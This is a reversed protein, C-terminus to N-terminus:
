RFLWDQGRKWRSLQLSLCVLQVARRLMVLGERAHTGELRVILPYPCATWSMAQLIGEALTDCRIMGGFINIFVVQVQRDLM